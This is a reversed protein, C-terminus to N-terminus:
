LSHKPQRNNTIVIALCDMCINKSALSSPRQKLVDQKSPTKSFAPGRGLHGRGLHGRGVAGSPGAARLGLPGRGAARPGSGAVAGHGPPRLGPPGTRIKWLKKTWRYMWACACIQMPNPRAIHVVTLKFENEMKIIM